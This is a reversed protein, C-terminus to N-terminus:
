NTIFYARQNHPTANENNASRNPPGGLNINSTQPQGNATICQNAYHGLRECNNCVINATISTSPNQRAANNNNLPHWQNTNNSSIPRFLPRANSSCPVSQKTLHQTATTAQQQKFHITANNSHLSATPTIHFYTHYRPLTPFHSELLITHPIQM